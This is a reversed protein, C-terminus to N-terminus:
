KNEDLSYSVIKKYVNKEDNVSFLLGMQSLFHHSIFHNRLDCLFVAYFKILIFKTFKKLTKTFILNFSSM